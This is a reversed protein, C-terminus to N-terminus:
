SQDGDPFLRFQLTGHDTVGFLELIPASGAGVIVVDCTANM